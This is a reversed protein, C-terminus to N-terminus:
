FLSRTRLNLGEGWLRNDRIIKGLGRIVCDMPERAMTVRLGTAQALAGDIGPLCASGGCLMFGYSHVDASIEPPVNELTALIIRAIADVAPHVARFVDDSTVTLSAGMGTRAHRGYARASERRIGSLAAGVRIKLEEATADGVLLEGNSRLYNILTTDFREGAMKVSKASIIGGASIVAAETTGAGINVIMCGRPSLVRLGAGAAAAYIAPIQGVARAGAELVANEAALQEVETIRYPTAMVVSPRRFTSRIQKETFFAELMLSTVEFDSVVGDKIPRFALIGAPTKGLMRRADAGLAVIRHSESDIAAASPSRLIVGGELTWIRTHATGLDLGVFQRAM